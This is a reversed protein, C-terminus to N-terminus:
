SVGFSNNPMNHLKESKVEVYVDKIKRGEGEMVLSQLDFSCKEVQLLTFSM